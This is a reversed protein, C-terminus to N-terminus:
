GARRRRARRVDRQRYRGRCRNADPEAHGSGAGAAIIARRVPRDVRQDPPTATRRCSLKCEAVAPTALLGLALLAALARM